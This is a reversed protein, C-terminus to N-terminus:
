DSLAPALTGSKEAREEIQESEALKASEQQKNFLSRSVLAALIYMYGAVSLYNWYSGAINGALCSFVCAILGVGLCKEVWEESSRFLKWGSKIMLFFVLLYLGMGVFGTEVTQQIYSNHFSHWVRGEFGEAKLSIYHPADLGAGLIPSSAIIEKGTEWLEFRQTATADFGEDSRTMEIREQVAVPLLFQWFLFLLVVGFLIKREKLFGVVTWGTLAALYGSRSFLFAICYYSLTVLMGVYGKWPLKPISFLFTVLVIAYMALFVALENSGLSEMGGVRQSENYHSFDQYQAINYFSRSIMLIAVSMLLLVIYIQKQSRINNVIILYYLPIRILNKWYVLRENSLGFTAREEFYHAGWWVEIFTWLIMLIIPGNLATKVFFSEGNKRKDIFWRVILAVLIVDNIDKGLPFDMLYNLINQQPIFPIIFFLGIEIRYFITLVVALISAIYFPYILLESLGWGLEM